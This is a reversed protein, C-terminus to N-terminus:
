QETQNQASSWHRRPKNCQETKNPLQLTINIQKHKAAPDLRGSHGRIFGKYIYQKFLLLVFVVFRIKALRQLGKSYANLLGV